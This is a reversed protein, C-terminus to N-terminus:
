DSPPRLLGHLGVGHPTPTLLWGTLEDNIHALAKRVTEDIVAYTRGSSYYRVVAPLPDPSDFAAAPVDSMGLHVLGNRLARLGLVDVVAPTTLMANVRALAPAELVHANTLMKLSRALHHTVVLRHKFAAAQCSGCCGSRAALAATAAAGQLMLMLPVYTRPIDGAFAEAYCASSVGDGWSWDRDLEGGPPRHPPGAARLTGVMQGVGFALDHMVRGAERITGPGPVQAGVNFALTINTAVPVSRVMLVALDPNRIGLARALRRISGGTFAQRTALDFQAVDAALQGLDRRNDDFFKAGNRAAAALAPDWGLEPMDLKLQRSGFAHAEFAVLVAYQVFALAREVHNDELAALVYGLDARALALGLMAPPELGIEDPTSM